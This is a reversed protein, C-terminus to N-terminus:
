RTSLSLLQNYISTLRVSTDQGFKKSYLKLEMNVLMATHQIELGIKLINYVIREYINGPNIPMYVSVGKVMKHGMTNKCERKDCNTKESCM